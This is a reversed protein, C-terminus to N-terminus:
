PPPQDSELQSMHGVSEYMSGLGPLKRDRTGIYPDTRQLELHQSLYSRRTRTPLRFVPLSYPSAFPTPSHLLMQVRHSVLNITSGAAKFVHLFITGRLSCAACVCAMSEFAGLM